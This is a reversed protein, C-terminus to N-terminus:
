CLLLLERLKITEGLGDSSSGREWSEAEWGDVDAFVPDLPIMLKKLFFCLSDALSVGALSFGAVGAGLWFWFAAPLTWSKPAGEDDAMCGGDPMFGM